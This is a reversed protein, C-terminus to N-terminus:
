DRLIVPWGGRHHGKNTMTTLTHLSTAHLRGIVLEYYPRARTVCIAKPLISVSCAGPNRKKKKKRQRVVSGDRQRHFVVRGTENRKESRLLRKIKYVVVTEGGNWFGYGKSRRSFARGSRYTLSRYKISFTIIKSPVFRGYLAGANTATKKVSTTRCVCVAPVCPSTNQNEVWLEVM